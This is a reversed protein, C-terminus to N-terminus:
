CHRFLLLWVIICILLDITVNKPGILFSQKTVYFQNLYKRSVNLVLWSPLFLLFLSSALLRAEPLLEM